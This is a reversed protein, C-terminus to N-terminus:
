RATERNAFVKLAPHRRLLAPLGVCHDTHEHTILVADIAATALGLSQLSGELRPGQFGADLMVRAGGAEILSCNGSSSTGLIHFAFAM